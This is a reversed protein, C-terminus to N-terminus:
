LNRIVLFSNNKVPSDGVFLLSRRDGMTRNRLGTGLGSTENSATQMARLDSEAPRRQYLSVGHVVTSCWYKYMDLLVQKM